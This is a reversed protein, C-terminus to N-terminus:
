EGGIQNKLFEVVKEMGMARSAKVFIGDGPKVWSALTKALELADEFWFVQSLGKEKAVNCATKMAPGTCFVASVSLDSLLEGLKEHENLTANGLEAMDGLVAVYRVFGPISAFERLGQEMSSPNANYADNILIVGNSLSIWEMRMGPPTFESLAKTINEWSVQFNRAVAIAALANYLNHKGKMPLSIPHGEVEMFLGNENKSELPIGRVDCGEGFGFTVTHSAMKEVTKLLPDDGNLFATGSHSLYELLEAKAKLVGHIDGFGELHAKGINTIVGHTPQAIECLARIEGFHNAGMEMVGVEGGHHWQCISLPVGIHNNLNGPTKFTQFQTNLIQAMMEKTTTKGNSGTIAVIPFSFKKRYAKAVQQLAWLSDPVEFLVKGSFDELPTRNKEAIVAVAGKSFAEKIFAHGDFHNGKLAVFVMGPQLTRSDISIGYVPTTDLGKKELNLIRAIDSLSFDM